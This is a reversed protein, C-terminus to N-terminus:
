GKKKRKLIVGGIKTDRPDGGISAEIEYNEAVKQIILQGSGPKEGYSRIGFDSLGVSIIVIRDPPHLELDKVTNEEHEKTFCYPFISFTSLPNKQRALYNIMEGIPLVDLTQGPPYRKLWKSIESVITGTPDINPPFSYFMDVGEGVIYTKSHLNQQSYTVLKLVGPILLALSCMIFVIRGWKGAGLRGPFEGILVAPVLLGALAAQYFGYQFIRGQLLMRGMMATALLALLLRTVQINSSKVQNNSRIVDTVCISTYILMLGLLCRGMQSWQIKFWSLWILCVVLVGIFLYRLGKRPCNDALWAFGGIMTILACAMLTARVHNIFNKWPEDLGMFNLFFGSNTIVDSVAFINIWAHCAVMIAEKWPFFVAFYLIFISTPIIAGASWAVITQCNLRKSNRCQIMIAAVTVVGAAMLIELKLLASLGLLFGALFSSFPTMEKVWKILVFVLLLCVLFGHTAEHSYPTAFNYNGVGIFQSFGFVAIFSATAVVAAGPGWARRCLIYIVLTIAGFILLNAMVLIMLGQGFLSFVGANIYQSLPGYFNIMHGSTLVEGQALRWPIYLQYGFDVLTDPWRRWSTVLFFVTVGVLSVLGLLEWQRSRNLKIKDNM